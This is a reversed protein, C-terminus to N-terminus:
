ILHETMRKNLDIASGIYIAGSDNNMICYIGSSGKLLIRAGKLSETLHLDTFQMISPLRDPNDILVPLDDFTDCYVMNCFFYHFLFLSIIILFVIFILATNVVMRYNLSELPAFVKFQFYFSACFILLLILLFNNISLWAYLYSLDKIILFSYFNFTNM